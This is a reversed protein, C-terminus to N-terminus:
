LEREYLVFKRGEYKEPVLLMTESWETANPGLFFAIQDLDDRESKELLRAVTDIFIGRDLAFLTVALREDENRSVDQTFYMAEMSGHDNVIIYFDTEKNLRRLGELTPMEFEWSVPIKSGQFLGTDEAMKHLRNPDIKLPKITPSPKPRKPFPADLRFYGVQETLEFGVKEAVHISAKNRSSTAYWMRKYGENEATQVLHEVIETAKGEERYDEHVRLGKAWTVGGQSIPVMAIIAILKDDDLTGLVITDEDEVWQSFRNPVYDNGSWIGACLEDVLAQDEKRLRRIESTMSIQDVLPKIFGPSLHMGDLFSQYGINHDASSPNAFFSAIIIIRTQYM